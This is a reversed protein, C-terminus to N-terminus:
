ISSIDLDSIVINSVLAGTAIELQKLITGIQEEAQEKTM